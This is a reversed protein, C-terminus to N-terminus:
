ICSTLKEFKPKASLNYIWKVFFPALGFFYKKDKEDMADVMWPMLLAMESRPMQNRYELETKLVEAEPLKSIVENVIIEEKDLHGIVLEIYNKSASIFNNLETKNGSKLEKFLGNLKALGEDLAIHEHEMADIKTLFDPQKQRMIPFFFGDEGHHHALICQEHYIFWNHLKNFDDTSYSDIKNVITKLKDMDKRIADHNWYYGKLLKRDSTKM